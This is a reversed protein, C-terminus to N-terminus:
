RLCVSLTLVLYLTTAYFYQSYVEVERRRKAHNLLRSAKESRSKNSKGTANEESIQDEDSALGDGNQAMAAVLGRGVLAEELVELLLVSMKVASGVSTHKYFYSYFALAATENEALFSMCRQTQLPGLAASSAVDSDSQPYFSNLLLETMADCVAPKAEDTALRSLLVDIPVVDYFHFGRISKVQGFFRFM